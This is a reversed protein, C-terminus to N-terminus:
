NGKASSRVYSAWLWYMGLGTAIGLVNVGIDSLSSDRSPIFAQVTEMLVGFLGAVLPALFKSRCSFVGSLSLGLLTYCLFHGLSTSNRLSMPLTTKSLSLLEAALRYIENFTQISTCSAVAILLFMSVSSACFFLYFTKAQAQGKLEKQEPM